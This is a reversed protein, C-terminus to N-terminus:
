CRPAHPLMADVAAVAAFTASAVIILLMADHRLSVYVSFCCCCCLCPLVRPTTAYCRCPMMTAYRKFMLMPLFASAIRSDFEFLFAAAAAAYDVVVAAYHCPAMLTDLM